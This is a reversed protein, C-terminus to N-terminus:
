NISNKHTSFIPSSVFVMCSYNSNNDYKDRVTGILLINHARVSQTTSLSYSVTEWLDVQLIRSVFVYPVFAFAYCSCLVVWTSYRNLRGVAAFARTFIAKM